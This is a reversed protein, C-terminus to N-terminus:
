FRVSMGIFPNYDPASSTVGFNCGWDLQVNEQLTYTWGVDAQGQWRFGPANGTVTFFEAYMGLRETLGRGLTISNVFEIDHDGTGDAVFDLETMAGLAWSRGLDLGFPVIVGGETEGNRVDSEPLPWKIFPMIAVALRGQDNGLLNVKLRTQLDGVGSASDLTRSARDRVRVRVYPDLLLQLDVNNLLGVKLNLPALAWGETQLDNGGRSERDFVANVWDMELQFHGADVTRPSETQDPRDTSLERMLQPPTPHFLHYRRKDPSLGTLEAAGLGGASLVTAVAAALLRSRMRWPGLPPSGPGSVRGGPRAPAPRPIPDAPRARGPPPAPTRLPSGFFGVRIM